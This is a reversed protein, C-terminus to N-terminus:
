RECLDWVKQAVKCTIFLHQSTEVDELCLPCQMNVGQMGRRVLNPMTPLRDLLLM